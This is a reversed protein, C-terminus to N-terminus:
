WKGKHIIIVSLQHQYFFIPTVPQQQVSWIFALAVCLMNSLNREFTELIHFKLQEIQEYLEFMM